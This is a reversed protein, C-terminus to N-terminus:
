CGCARAVVRSIPVLTVGREHAQPLWRELAKFTAPYPHAIGIAAGRQRALSELLALQSDIFAPDTDADIFVDRSAHPVGANDAARWGISASSTVSDLFLLGRARLEQMVARMSAEHRTYASGMHNNVGVYGSFRSLNWALRRTFEAESLGLLMAQPGPDADPDSPEMPLHVLLEFGAERAITALRPTGPTYPLFALTVAPDLAMSRTVQRETFGLDDIVLAIMPASLPVGQLSAYRRWAPLPEADPIDAALESPLSAVVLSEPPIPDVVIEVEDEGAGPIPTSDTAEPTDPIDPQPEVAELYDLSEILLDYDQDNERAADAVPAPRRVAAPAKSEVIPADVHVPPELALTQEGTDTPADLSLWTGVAAGVLLLCLGAL